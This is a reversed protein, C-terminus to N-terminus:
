LELIYFVGCTISLVLLKPHVRLPEVRHFVVGRERSLAVLGFLFCTPRRRTIPPRM